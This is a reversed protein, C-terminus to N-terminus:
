MARAAARAADRRRLIEALDVVKTADDGFRERAASNIAKDIRLFRELGPWLQSAESYRSAETNEQASQTDLEEKEVGMIEGGLEYFAAAANRYNEVDREELRRRGQRDDELRSEWHEAFKQLALSCVTYDIAAAPPMTDALDELPFQGPAFAKPLLDDPEVGLAAALKRRTRPHMKRSGLEVDSITARSVGSLKALESQSLSAHERAAKLPEIEQM